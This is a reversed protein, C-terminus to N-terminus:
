WGGLGRQAADPRRLIPPMAAGPLDRGQALDFARRQSRGKGASFRAALGNGMATIFRKVGGGPGRIWGCSFEPAASAAGM